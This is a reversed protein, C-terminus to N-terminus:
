RRFRHPKVRSLPVNIEAPPGSSGAPKGSGCDGCGGCGGAVNSAAAADKLRRATGQLPPIKGAVTSLAALVRSRWPRPAMAFFAYSGAAIIICGVILVDLASSM